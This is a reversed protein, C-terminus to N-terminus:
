LYNFQQFTHPTITLKNTHHIPQLGNNEGTPTKESMRM